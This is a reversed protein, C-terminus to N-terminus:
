LQPMKQINFSIAFIDGVLELGIGFSVKVQFFLDSTVSNLKEM